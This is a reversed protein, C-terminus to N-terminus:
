SEPRGGIRRHRLSKPAHSFFSSWFVLFWFLPLRWEPLWVVGAVPLLKVLAAAGAAEGLVVQEAAVQVALLALGSGLVGAGALSASIVAGHAAAGLLIVAALHLSRLAVSAWRLWRPGQVRRHSKAQASILPEM